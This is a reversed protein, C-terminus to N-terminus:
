ILSDDYVSCLVPQHFGKMGKLLIGQRDGKQGNDWYVKFYQCQSHSKEGSMSLFSTITLFPSFIFILSVSEAYCPFVFYRVCHLSLACSLNAPNLLFFSPQEFLCWVSSDSLVRQWWNQNVSPCISGARSEQYKIESIALLIGAIKM